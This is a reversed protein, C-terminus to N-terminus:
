LSSPEFAPLSLPQFASLSHAILHVQSRRSERYTISVLHHLIFSSPHLDEAV